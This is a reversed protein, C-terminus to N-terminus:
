HCPTEIESDSQFMRAGSPMPFPRAAIRIPWIMPHRISNRAPTIPPLTLFTGHFGYFSNQVSPFCGKSGQFITARQSSRWWSRHRLARRLRRLAYPLHIKRRTILNRNNEPNSSRFGRIKTFDVPKGRCCYTRGARIRLMTMEAPPPAPAGDSSLIVNSHM